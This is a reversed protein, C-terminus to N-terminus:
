SKGQEDILRQVLSNTVEQKTVLQAVTVQLASLASELQSAQAARFQTQEKLRDIDRAAVLSDRKIEAQETRLTVIEGTRRESQAKGNELHVSAAEEIRAMRADNYAQAQGFAYAAGLACIFSVTLSIIAVIIALWEGLRRRVPEPPLITM